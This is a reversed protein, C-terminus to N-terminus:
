RPRAPNGLRHRSPAAEFEAPTTGAKARSLRAPFQPFRTGRNLERQEIRSAGRVVRLRWPAAPIVGAAQHTKAIAEGQM